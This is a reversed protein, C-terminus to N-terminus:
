FLKTTTVVSNHRLTFQYDKLVDADVLNGGSYKCSIIWGADSFSMKSCSKFDVSRRNKVRKKVFVKIASPIGDLDNVVPREGIKQELEKVKIAYHTHKKIYRQNSPFLDMLVKYMHMNTYIEKAPINKLESVLLKEQQSRQQESLLPTAALEFAPTLGSLAIGAILIVMAMSLLIGTLRFSRRKPSLAGCHPCRADERSLIGSCSKCYVLSM